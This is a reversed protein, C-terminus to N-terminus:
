SVLGSMHKVARDVAASWGDDDREQEVLKVSPYWLSRGNVENLWYWIRAGGFSVLNITEQNLAGALHATSNSTTLVVDCAEILNALGDLDNFNDVESYQLIEIGHEAKLDAIEQAVDGYQLNVFVMGPLRLAPLLDELRMSKKAGIDKNSSKWSVGCLKKGKPCLTARMKKAKAADAKLYPGAFKQISQANLKLAQGLDGMPLHADYATQPVPEKSSVFQIDPLARSFLSILRPDTQVTLKNALKQAAKFNAGWFIEDGVGQEAWILLNEPKKDSSWPPQITLLKRRSKYDNTDWRWSYEDWARDFQGSQLLCHSFGHHADANEPSLAIVQEYTKIADDFERLALYTAALSVYADYDQPNLRIAENFGSKAEDFRKTLGFLNARNHWAQGYTPELEIARDFSRIAEDSKGLTDMINGRNFFLLEYDPMLKIACDISSAAHEHAELKTLVNSQGLFALPYNPRLEIARSYGQLAEKYRDLGFLANARNYQLEHNNSTIAKARDLLHLAKDYHGVQVLVVGALHLADFHKPQVDIVDMYTDFAEQLENNRHHTMAKQMVQPISQTLIKV